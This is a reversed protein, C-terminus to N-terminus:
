VANQNEVCYKVLVIYILYTCRFLNFLLFYINIHERRYDHVHLLILYFINDYMM